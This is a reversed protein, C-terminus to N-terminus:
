AEDKKMYFTYPDFRSHALILQEVDNWPVEDYGPLPLDRKALRGGQDVLLGHPDPIFAGHIFSLRLAGDDILIQCIGASVPGGRKSDYYVLGQRRIEETADPSARGIINRLELIVSLADPSLTCFHSAILQTPLM